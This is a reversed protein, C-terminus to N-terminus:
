TRRGKQRNNNYPSSGYLNRNTENILNSKNVDIVYNVYNFGEIVVAAGVVAPGYKAAAVGYAGLKLSLNINNQAFQNGTVNSAIDTVVKVTGLVGAAGSYPNVGTEEERPATQTSQKHNVQTQPVDAETDNIVTVIIEEPM